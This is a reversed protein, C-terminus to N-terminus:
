FLINVLKLTVRNKPLRCIRDIYREVLRLCWTKMRHVCKERLTIKKITQDDNNIKFGASLVSGELNKYKCYYERYDSLVGKYNQVAILAEKGKTPM